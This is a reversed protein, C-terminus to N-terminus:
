RTAVLSSRYTLRTKKAIQVREVIHNVRSVYWRGAATSAIGEIMVGGKARLFVTGMATGSGSYGLMRTPDQKILQETYEADSPAGSLIRSARQDAPQVPADVANQRAAAYDAAAGEGLVDLTQDTRSATPAPQAEPPVAPTEHTLPEGTDPNATAAAIAPSAGSGIRKYDFDLLRGMGRCYLLTGMPEQDLLSQESAFYLKPAGGAARVAEDDDESANVEVFCRARHFEALDQLMQWDTRDAQNYKVLSPMPDITVKGVQIGVRTAISTVVEDLKGTYQRGEVPPRKLFLCSMDMCTVEVRHSGSNALSRVSRVQGVFALAYETEWGLEIRVAMGEQVGDSNTSGPDSMVFTAKDAGRDVDEVDVRVVQLSIDAAGLTVKLMPTTDSAM